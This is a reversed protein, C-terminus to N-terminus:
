AHRNTQEMTGIDMCTWRKIGHNGLANQDFRMCIRGIDKHYRTIKHLSCIDGCLPRRDGIPELACWLRLERYWAIM